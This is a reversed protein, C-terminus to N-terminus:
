QNKKQIVKCNKNTDIKAVPLTSKEHNLNPQISLLRDQDIIKGHINRRKGDVDLMGPKWKLNTDNINYDYSAQLNSNDLKFDHYDTNLEFPNQIIDYCEEEYQKALSLTKQKLLHMEPDDGFHKESTNKKKVRFKM